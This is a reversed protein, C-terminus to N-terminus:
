TEFLAALTIRKATMRLKTDELVTGWAKGFNVKLRTEMGLVSNTSLRGMQHWNMRSSRVRLSNFWQGWVDGGLTLRGQGERLGAKFEGEYRENETTMVGFGEIVDAKWSGEYTTQDSAFFQKGQGCRKNQKWDGDYTTGDKFTKKGKGQILGNVFNGKYIDGEPTQLTGEGQFEDHEFEGEYELGDALVLKGRGHKKGNKFVGIYVDGSAYNFRGVASNSIWCWKLFTFCLFLVEWLMQYVEAQFTIKEGNGSISGRAALSNVSDKECVPVSNEKTHIGPTSTRLFERVM